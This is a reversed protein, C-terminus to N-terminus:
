AEQADLKADIERAIEDFAAQGIPAVNFVEVKFNRIRLIEVANTDLGCDAEKIYKGHRVARGYVTGVNPIHLSAVVGVKPWREM